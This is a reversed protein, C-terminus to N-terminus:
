MLGHFSTRLTSDGISQLTQKMWSTLTMRLQVEPQMEQVSHPLLRSTAMLLVGHALKQQLLGYAPQSAPQRTTEDEEEQVVELAKTELMASEMRTKWPPQAM